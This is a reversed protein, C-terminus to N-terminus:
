NIHPQMPTGTELDWLKITKDASGTALTQGDPSIAIAHIVDKHGKLVYLTEKTQTDRVEVTNGSVSALLTGDPSIDVWWAAGFRGSLVQVKTQQWDPAACDAPSVEAIVAQKTVTKTSSPTTPVSISCAPSGTPATPASTQTPDTPQTQLNTAERQLLTSYSSGFLSGLIFGGALLALTIAAHRFFSLQRFAIITTESQARRKSRSKPDPPQQKM